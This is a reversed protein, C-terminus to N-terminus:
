DFNAVCVLYALLAAPLLLLPVDVRWSLQTRLSPPDAVQGLRSTLLWTLRAFVTGGALLALLADAIRWGAGALVMSYRRPEWEQGSLFRHVGLSALSALAGVPIMAGALLVRLHTRTPTDPRRGM